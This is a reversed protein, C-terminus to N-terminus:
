KRKHIWYALIAFLAIFCIIGIVITFDFVHENYYGVRLEM